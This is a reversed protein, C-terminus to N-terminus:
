QKFRMLSAQLYKTLSGIKLKLLYGISPTILVAVRLIYLYRKAGLQKALYCKGVWHEALLHSFLRNDYIKKAHNYNYLTQYWAGLTKLDSFSQPASWDMASLHTKAQAPTYSGMLEALLDLKIKALSRKQELNKRSGIQNNHTRYHLLVKPINALNAVRSLRIWLEYDEVYQYKPNYRLNNKILVSRRIMASPHAIASEAFLKVKLEQHHELTKWVYNQKGFVRIWSGVVGVQPNSELFNVQKAFRDPEALDDADMRAIYKGRCLNLGDNLTQVIGLNKSHKKLIIRPDNISKLIQYSNDRSGDDIIILEFNQYTQKLISKVAARLHSSSNYVPLVVSVLPDAAIAPYLLSMGPLGTSTSSVRYNTHSSVFEAIAQAPGLNYGSTGDQVLTDHLLIPAQPYSLSILNLERIVSDYSHDGDLYFMPRLASKQSQLYSMATSVGDGLLQKIGKLGRILKGRDSGPQEPHKISPPLDITVLKTKLGFQKVIHYFISTAAGYHTGWDILHTPQYWVVASTMFIIEILPYPAKPFLNLNDLVFQQIVQNDVEFYNRNYVSLSSQYRIKTM